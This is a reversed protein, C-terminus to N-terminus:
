VAPQLIGSNVDAADLYELYYERLGQLIYQMQDINIHDDVKIKTNPYRVDIVLHKDFVTLTIESIINARSKTRFYLQNSNLSPMETPNYVSVILNSDIYDIPLDKIIRYVDALSNIRTPEGNQDLAQILYETEDFVPYYVNIKIQDSPVPIQLNPRSPPLSDPATTDIILPKTDKSVMDLLFICRILM